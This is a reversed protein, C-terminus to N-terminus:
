SAAAATFAALAGSLAKVTVEAEAGAGHRKAIWAPDNYSLWTKRRLFERFRDPDSGFHPSGASVRM